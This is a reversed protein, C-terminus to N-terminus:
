FLVTEHPKSGFEKKHEKKSENRDARVQLERNCFIYRDFMDKAKEADLNSAMVVIGFGKSRGQPDSPIECHVVRGAEKFLDKLDQWQVSWDLNGVYM